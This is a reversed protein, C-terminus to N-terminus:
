ICYFIKNDVEKKLNLRRLREKEEIKSEIFSVFNESCQCQSSELATQMRLYDLAGYEICKKITEEDGRLSFIFALTNFGRNCEAYFETLFSSDGKLAM